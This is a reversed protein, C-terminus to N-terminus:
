RQHFVHLIYYIKLDFQVKNNRSVLYIVRVRIPTARSVRALQKCITSIFNFRVAICKRAPQCKVLISSVHILDRHDFDFHLCKSLNVVVIM